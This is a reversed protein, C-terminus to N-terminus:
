EPLPRFAYLEQNVVRAKLDTVGLDKIANLLTVRQGNVKAKSNDVSVKFADGPKLEQDLKQVLERYKSTRSAGSKFKKKPIDTIKMRMLSVQLEEKEKVASM